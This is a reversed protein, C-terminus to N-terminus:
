FRPFGQDLFVDGFGDIIITDINLDYIGKDVYLYASHGVTDGAEPHHPVIRKEILDMLVSAIASRLTSEEDRWITYEITGTQELSIFRGRLDRGVFGINEDDHVVVRYDTQVNEEIFDTRKPSM